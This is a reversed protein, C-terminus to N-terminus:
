ARDGAGQCHSSSLCGLSRRRRASRKGPGKRRHAQIAIEDMELQELRERERERRKERNELTIEYKRLEQHAEKLEDRAKAIHDDVEAISTQIRERRDIVTQAYSGYYHAAEEPSGAAIAQERKLEAELDNAQRELENLLRVLEALNRRKEDVAWEHLRVLTKLKDAM